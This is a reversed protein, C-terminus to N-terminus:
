QVDQSAVEEFQELNNSSLRESPLQSKAFIQHSKEMFGEFIYSHDQISDLLRISCNNPNPENEFWEPTLNLWMMVFARMTVGHTVIILDHIGYFEADRYFTNFLDHVRRAVDFRSEGLPMRAWFRGGCFVCKQFHQYEHPYTTSIEDLPVGEFLGFQQEGLFISEREDTVIFASEEKLLKATQRARKYPSCWLRVHSSPDAEGKSWLSEYFDKIRRGAEKAQEIGNKSLDIIHDAQERLVSKDINSLSEGHRV